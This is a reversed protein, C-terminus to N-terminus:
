FPGSPPQAPPVDDVVAGQNILSYGAENKDDWMLAFMAAWRTNFVHGGDSIGSLGILVVYFVGCSFSFWTFTQNSTM